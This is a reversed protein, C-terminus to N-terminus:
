GGFGNKSSVQRSQVRSIKSVVKGDVNILIPQSQIDGRMGILEKGLAKIETILSSDGDTSPESSEDGVGFFDGLSQLAPAVAALGILGGIIPSSLLGAGAVSVLGGAISYLGAAVAFLPTTVSGMTSLSASLTEIVGSVESLNTTISALGEGAIALQPGIMALETIDDIIGGGFFSGLGGVLMAASFAIMGVSAMLLAPGLLLLGGIAEPTLAGLMTVFGDAVATIIEPLKDIAKMLVNGMVTAIGTIIPALAQIVLSFAYIAPSALLLAAGIALIIPIAPAAAAGFAGLGAGAAAMGGGAAAGTTGLTTQSAALGVNATTQGVTAGIGLLTRATDVLKAAGLAIYRGLTTNMIVNRAALYGNVVLAQAASAKDLIFDKTKVVFSSNMLAIGAGVVMNKAAIVGNYIGTAVTSAVTAIKNLGLVKTLGGFMKTAGGVGEGSILKFALAKLYVKGFEIALTGAGSTASAFAGQLAQVTDASDGYKATLEDQVKKNAMQTTLQDKTMGYTASLADLQVDTLKNFEEQGGVGDLIAQSMKERAAAREDESTASKMEIAAARVASDNVDRGLMVRAKAAAKLSSEIDLMSDASANLNDMNTGQKILAANQELISDLQEKSASKLRHTQSTMGELMKKANVGHKEAITKIHDSVDGAEVGADQFAVVLDTASAADGTLSAVETVGKIMESTAANVNGFKDAIATASSALADSGYLMGTLSMSAMDVSGKLAMAEKVSFGQSTVMQKMTDVHATLSTGVNEFAKNMALAAVGGRAVAKSIEDNLGLINNLTKKRDDLLEQYHDASEQRKGELRVIEDLDDLQALLAKGIDKGTKAQKLLIAKKANQIKTLKNALDTEGQIDTLLDKQSQNLKKQGQVRKSLIASINTQLSEEAKLAKLNKANEEAIKKQINEKKKAM